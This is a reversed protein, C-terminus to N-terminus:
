NKHKNNIVVHEILQLNFSTANKWSHGIIYIGQFGQRLPKLLM